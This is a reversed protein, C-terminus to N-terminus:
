VKFLHLTRKEEWSRVVRAHIEMKLGLVLRNWVVEERYINLGYKWQNLKTWPFWIYDFTALRGKQINNELSKWRIKFKSYWEFVHPHLM